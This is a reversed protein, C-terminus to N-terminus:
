ELSEREPHLAEGERRAYLRRGLPTEIVHTEYRTAIAPFSVVEWDEQELVHGVLDDQHLRQMVIIICGTVKNNLRSLLANDYWQNVRTRRAESLAEDPKQPDDIIILDAGRGTIPGEVSVALREGQETTSFDHAAVRWEAIRTPFLRQYWPSLMVTRTDRAFKESLDQGYSACIVRGSPRHGLYWAPLAIWALRSKLHRPPVNLILRRFRGLQCAELRAAVVELYPSMSLATQPNLEYFARDAFSLFDRPLIFDYETPSLNM